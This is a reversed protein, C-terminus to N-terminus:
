VKLDPYRRVKTEIYPLSMCREWVDVLQGSSQIIEPNIYGRYTQPDKYAEDIWRHDKFDKKIVFMKERSFVQNSAMYVIKYNAATQKMRDLFLQPLM